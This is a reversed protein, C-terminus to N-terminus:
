AALDKALEEQAVRLSRRITLIQEVKTTRFLTRVRETIGALIFRRGSNLRSVHANIIAGVGASDVYPVESLDVILTPAKEARVAEMFDYLTDITLPGIVLLAPVGEPWGEQRMIRLKDNWM